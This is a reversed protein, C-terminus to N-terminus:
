TIFESVSKGIFKGALIKILVEPFYCHHDRAINNLFSCNHSLMDVIVVLVCIM